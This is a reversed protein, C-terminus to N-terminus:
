TKGGKMLTFNQIHAKHENVAAHVADEVARQAEELEEVTVGCRLLEQQLFELKLADWEEPTFTPKEMTGTLAARTIEKELHRDIEDWERTYAGTGKLEIGTDTGDIKIGM